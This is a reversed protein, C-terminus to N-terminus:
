KDYGIWQANKWDSVELLGMQWCAIKSRASTNGMNDWVMIKWYYKKVSLLAKGNYKIQISQDSKIKGSDWVNAQNAILKVSDDSVLVRYNTQQTNRTSSEIQWNLMPNVADVGIPNTQYECQLHGVLLKQAQIKVTPILLTFCALWKIYKQKIMMVM